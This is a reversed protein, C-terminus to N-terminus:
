YTGPSSLFSPVQSTALLRKSDLASRLSAPMTLLQQTSGFDLRVASQWSPLDVWAPNGPGMFGVSMRPLLTEAKFSNGDSVTGMTMGPIILQVWNRNFDNWAVSNGVVRNNRPILEPYASSRTGNVVGIGEMMNGFVSNGEVTCGSSEILYIGRMSNGYAFNGKITGSQSAEYQIGFGENYAVTNGEILNQTNMWDIWIGDGQNYAVVNGRIIANHLGGSGILKMGGAEWWKNFGRTNTYTVTNNAITLRNGFGNIGMQGCREISSNTLASDSGALQVCIGDMDRVVLNNLVNNNGVVKVAGWRYAVSTNAHAFDLGEVTLRAVNEAQLTHRLASVELATGALLPTALKVVLRRTAADYTFSNETLNNVGGGARGPWIGGESQHVGTLYHNSDSPFGGFVNGGIQRLAVGDLYVQQPEEGTWNTWYTGASGATWASVLVSGKVTVSRPSLARLRTPLGSLSLTPLVVAERYTGAAIVVDDGARLQRIAASISKFPNAQNGPGNDSAANSAIDVYV